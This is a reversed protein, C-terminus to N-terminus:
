NSKSARRHVWIISAFFLRRTHLEITEGAKREFCKEFFGFNIFDVSRRDFLLNEPSSILLRSFRAFRDGPVRDVTLKDNKLLDNMLEDISTDQV